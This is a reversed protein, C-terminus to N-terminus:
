ASLKKGHYQFVRCTPVLLSPRETELFTPNTRNVALKYQGYDQRFEKISLHGGFKKLLRINPASVCTLDTSYLMKHMKKLLLKVEKIDYYQEHRALYAIICPFSCFNGDVLFYDQYVITDNNKQAKEMQTKTLISTNYSSKIGDREITNVTYSYLYEIPIGLPQNTFPETCYLCPISTTDPLKKSKMYDKLPTFFHCKDISLDPELIMQKEDIGLDELRTVMPNFESTPVNRELTKFTRDVQVPDIHLTFNYSM